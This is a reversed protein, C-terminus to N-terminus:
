AQSSVLDPHDFSNSDYFGAGTVTTINVALRSSLNRVDVEVQRTEQAYNVLQVGNHAVTLTPCIMWWSSM